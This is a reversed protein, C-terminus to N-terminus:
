IDYIDDSTMFTYKESKPQQVCWVTFGVLGILEQEDQCSWPMNIYRLSRSNDKLLRVFFYEIDKVYMYM